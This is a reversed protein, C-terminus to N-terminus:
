YLIDYSIFYMSDVKKEAELMTYYNKEVRLLGRFVHNRNWFSAFKYRVRGSFPVNVSLSM